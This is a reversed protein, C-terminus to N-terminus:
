NKNEPKFDALKKKIEYWVHEIPNMEPGNGPSKMVTLGIEKEFHTVQLVINLIEKKFNTLWVLIRVIKAGNGSMCGWVMISTPHKVARLLCKASYKEGKRRRVRNMGDHGHLNFGAKM